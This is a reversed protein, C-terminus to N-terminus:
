INDNGSSQKEEPKGDAAEKPRLTLWSELSDQCVPCLDMTIIRLGTDKKIVITPAYTEYFAGCRDCKKADSM